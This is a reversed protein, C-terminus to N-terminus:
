RAAHESRRGQRSPDDHDNEPPDFIAAIGVTTARGKRGADSVPPPLVTVAPSGDATEKRFFSDSCCKAADGKASNNREVGGRNTLRCFAARRHLVVRLLTATRKVGVHVPVHELELWGAHEVTALAPPIPPAEQIPLAPQPAATATTPTANNM